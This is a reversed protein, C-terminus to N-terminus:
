RMDSYDTPNWLQSTIDAALPGDIESAARAEAWEPDARFATWCADRTQRDPWKLIYVLQNSGEPIWFGVQDFAHRKFLPWTVEKFRRSLADLKGEVAEYCRFEYLM